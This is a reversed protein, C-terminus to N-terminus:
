GGGGTQVEASTTLKDHKAELDALSKDGGNRPDVDVVFLGSAGCAIAWNCDPHQSAWARIQVEDTTADKFGSPKRPHKGPRNCASKRFTCAGAVLSHCPFVHIGQKAPAVITSDPNVIRSRKALINKLTTTQLAESTAAGPASENQPLMVGG